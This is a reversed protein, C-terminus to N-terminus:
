GLQLRSGQEVEEIGRTEPLQTMSSVGIIRRAM